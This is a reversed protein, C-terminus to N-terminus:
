HVCTANRPPRSCDAAALQSWPPTKHMPSGRGLERRKPSILSDTLGARNSSGALRSSGRAHKLAREQHQRRGNAQGGNTTMVIRVAASRVTRGAAAMPAAFVGAGISTAGVAGAKTRMAHGLPSSAPVVLRQMATRRRRQIALRARRRCLDGVRIVRHTTRPIEQQVIRRRNAVLPSTRRLGLTATLRASSAQRSAQCVLSRPDQPPTTRAPPLRVKTEAM